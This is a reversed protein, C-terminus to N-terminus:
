FLCPAVGDFGVFGGVVGVFGAFGDIVVLVFACGSLYDIGADGHDHGFLVCPIVASVLVNATKPQRGM